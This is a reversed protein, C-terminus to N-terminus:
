LSQAIGNGVVPVPYAVIVDGYFTNVDDNGVYSPDASNEVGSMFQSYETIISRRLKKSFKHQLCNTLFCRVTAVHFSVMRITYGFQIQAM